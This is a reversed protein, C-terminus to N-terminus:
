CYYGHRRAVLYDYGHLRGTLCYHVHLRGILCYYVHLSTNWTQEELIRIRYKDGSISNGTIAM